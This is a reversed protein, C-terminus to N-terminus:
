LPQELKCEWCCHIHTGKGRMRVLMEQKNGEHYGNQSPCSPSETYNQNANGQYSFINFMKEHRQQGNTNRKLVTWNMPSCLNKNTKDGLGSGQVTGPVCLLHHSIQQLSLHLSFSHCHLHTYKSNWFIATDYLLKFNQNLDLHESLPRM